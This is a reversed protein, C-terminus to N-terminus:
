TEGVRPERASSTGIIGVLAFSFKADRPEAESKPVSDINSV